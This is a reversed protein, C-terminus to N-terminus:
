VAFPFQIKFAQVLKRSDAEDVQGIKYKLCEIPIPNMNEVLAVSNHKLGKKQNTMILVHTPLSGARKLQATLPIVHVIPSNRNGVNNQAIIVPRLGSQVHERYPLDAYYIDGTMPASTKTAPIAIM